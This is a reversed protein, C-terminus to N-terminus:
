RGSFKAPRKSAFADTAEAFDETAFAVIQFAALLDLAGPGEMTQGEYLAVKTLWQAVPAGAAISRAFAMTEAELEEHQVCRSLIGIREAEEAGVERASLIIEAARGIGIVQPLLWTTGGAPVLGRRLWAACFRARDSGIRIDCALALDFGVGHAPGNVMAITPIRMRRLGLVIERLVERYFSIFDAPPGSAVSLPGKEDKFDGGACFAPEAGTVVLARANRDAGLTEVINLIRELHRPSVANMREPRNIRLVAVGDDGQELVIAKQDM